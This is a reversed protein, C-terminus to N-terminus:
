IYVIYLARLTLMLFASLGVSFHAFSGFLCRVLISIFIVLLHVRETEPSCLFICILIVTHYWQVCVMITLINLLSPFVWHQHSHLNDPVIKCQKHSVLNIQNNPFDTQWCRRFGFKHM